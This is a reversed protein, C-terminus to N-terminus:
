MLLPVCGGKPNGDLGTVVPGKACRCTGIEQPTGCRPATRLKTESPSSDLMVRLPGRQLIPLINKAVTKNICTGDM